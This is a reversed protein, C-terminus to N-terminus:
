LGGKIGESLFILCYHVLYVKGVVFLFFCSESMARYIVVFICSECTDCFPFVFSVFFYLWQMIGLFLWLLM